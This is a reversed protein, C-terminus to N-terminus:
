YNGRAQAPTSNAENGPWKKRPLFFRGPIYLRNACAYSIGYFRLLIKPNLDPRTDPILIRLLISLTTQKSYNGLANARPLRSRTVNESYIHTHVYTDTVSLFTLKNRKPIYLVQSRRLAPAFSQTCARDTIAQVILGGRQTSRQLLSNCARDAQAVQFASRPQSRSFVPCHTLVAHVTLESYRTDTTSFLTARGPQNQVSLM